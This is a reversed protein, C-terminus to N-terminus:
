ITIIFIGLRFVMPLNFNHLYRILRLHQLCLQIRMQFKMPFFPRDFFYSFTFQTIFLETLWGQISEMNTLMIPYSAIYTDLM